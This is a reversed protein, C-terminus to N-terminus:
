ESEPAQAQQEKIKKKEEELQKLKRNVNERSEPREEFYDNLGEKLSSAAIRFVVIGKMPAQKLADNAAQKDTGAFADMVELITNEFDIFSELKSALEISNNNHKEYIEEIRRNVFYEYNEEDYYKKFKEKIEEIKPECREIKAKSQAELEEQQRKKVADLASVFDTQYPKSADYFAELTAELKDMTKDYYAAAMREQESPNYTNRFDQNANHLHVMFDKFEKMNKAYDLALGELEAGTPNNASKLREIFEEMQKIRNGSNNIMSYMIGM